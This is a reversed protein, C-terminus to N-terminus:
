IDRSPRKISLKSLDCRVDYGHYRAYKLSSKVVVLIDNTTKVSLGNGNKLNGHNLKNGIFEEKLKASLEHINYSGLEDRIHTNIIRSYCAYTSEKVRIKSSKLWM